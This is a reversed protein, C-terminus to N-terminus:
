VGIPGLEQELRALGRGCLALSACDEGGVRV